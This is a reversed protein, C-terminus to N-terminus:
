KIIGEARFNQIKTQLWGWAEREADGATKDIAIKLYAMEVDVKEAPLMHLRSVLIAAEVVAAQARNFGRFMGHQARQRVECIFRPRESEADEVSVVEVEQHAIAASLRPALIQQSPVTPWDKRGTLCGAFVRVDDCANIVACRTASINYLTRSPRFPSIVFGRQHTHLGLPAIHVVGEASITTVISEFIM